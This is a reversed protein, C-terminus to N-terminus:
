SVEMEIEALAAELFHTASIALAARKHLIFERTRTENKLAQHTLGLLKEPNFPQAPLCYESLEMLDFFGTHKIDYALGICPTGTSASLICSHLTGGIHINLQRYVHLLTDVDGDVVTLKVGADQIIRAILVETDYHVMFYFHCNTEAQIKKLTTIYLPLDKTVRQGAAPGHFPINIGIKLGDAKPLNHSHTTNPEIFLAPDGILKVTKSTCSQLIRRSTEDRVSIHSCHALFDSLFVKESAPLNPTGLKLSADVFNIGTGYVIAPINKEKIFQLDIKLRDPFQLNRDPSFYGSGCIIMAGLAQDITELTQWNTPIPSLDPRAKKM